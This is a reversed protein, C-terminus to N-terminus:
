RTFDGPDRTLFAPLKDIGTALRFNVGRVAMECEEARAFSQSSMSVAWASSVKARVHVICFLLSPFCLKPKASAALPLPFPREGRPEM